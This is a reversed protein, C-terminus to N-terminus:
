GYGSRVGIAQNEAIILAHDNDLGKGPFGDRVMEELDNFAFADAM